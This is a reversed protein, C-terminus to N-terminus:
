LGWSIGCIKWTGNVNSIRIDAMEKEGFNDYEALISYGEESTREIGLETDSFWYFGKACDRMYLGDNTDIFIPSDGDIINSYRESIMDKTLYKEAYERIDSTNTFDSDVVKYYITERVTYVTDADYMLGGGSLCEMRNLAGIIEQAQGTTPASQEVNIQTESKHNAIDNQETTTETTSQRTVESKTGDDTESIVEAETITETTIETITGTTTEDKNKIVTACGTALLCFTLCVAFAIKRM